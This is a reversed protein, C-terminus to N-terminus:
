CKQLKEAYTVTYKSLNIDLYKINKPFIRFPTINLIKIEM